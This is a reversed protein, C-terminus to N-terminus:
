LEMEQKQTRLPSEVDRNFITLLLHNPFGRWHIYIRSRKNCYPRSRPTRKTVSMMRDTHIIHNFCCNCSFNWVWLTVTASSRISMFRIWDEHFQQPTFPTDSQVAVEIGTGLEHQKEPPHSVRIRSFRHGTPQKSWNVNYMSLLIPNIDSNTSDKAPTVSIPTNQENEYALFNDDM